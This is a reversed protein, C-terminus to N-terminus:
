ILLTKSTGTNEDKIWREYDEFCAFDRYSRLPFTGYGLNRMSDNYAEVQSIFNMTLFRDRVEPSFWIIGWADYFTRGDYFEKCKDIVMDNKIVGFKHPRDTSFTGFEIHYDKPIKPFELEVITDPMVLLYGEPCRGIEMGSMIAGLLDKDPHTQLKYFIGDSKQRGLYQAHSSIKDTNTVIVIKDCGASQCLLISRDLLTMENNIPLLEKYQGSWRTAKGAAPIIGIM